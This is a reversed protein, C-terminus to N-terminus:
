PKTPNGTDNKPQPIALTGDRQKSSMVPRESKCLLCLTFHPRVDHHGELQLLPQCGTHELTPLPFYPQVGILDIFNWHCVRPLVNPFQDLIPEHDPLRLLNVRTSAGPTRQLGLPLTAVRAVALATTGSLSPEGGLNTAREVERRESGLDYNHSCDPTM